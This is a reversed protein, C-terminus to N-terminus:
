RRKNKAIGIIVEGLLRFSKLWDKRLASPIFSHLTLPILVM